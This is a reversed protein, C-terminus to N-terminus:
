ISDPIDPLKSDKHPDIGMLRGVRQLEAIARLRDLQLQMLKAEEGNLAGATMLADILNITENVNSVALAAVFVISAETLTKSVPSETSM